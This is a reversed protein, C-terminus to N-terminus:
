TCQVDILIIVEPWLLKIKHILQNVSAACKLVASLSFSETVALINSEVLHSMLSGM